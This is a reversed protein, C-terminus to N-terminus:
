LDSHDSGKRPLVAALRIDEIFKQVSEVAAIAKLVEPFLECAERTPEFRRGRLIFLAFGCRTELMSISKSVAAKSIGMNEAAETISEIEMVSRFVVLLRITTGIETKAGDSKQTGASQGCLRDVM